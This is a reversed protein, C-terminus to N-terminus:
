DPPRMGSPMTPVILFNMTDVNSKADAECEAMAKEIWGYDSDGGASPGTTPTGKSRFAQLGLAIAGGFLIIVALGAITAVPNPLNAAGCYPCRRAFYSVPAECDRCQGHPLGIM